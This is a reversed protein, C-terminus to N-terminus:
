SVTVADGSVAISIASLSPLNPSEGNPGVLNEGTAQDFEAGHCGGCRIRGDTVDTFTCKQHPCVASWAKFDGATPQVFVTKDVIVGGGVPVEATKASTGSSAGTTDAGGSEGEEGEDDSGCAALLPLGVGAMLAGRMATRRLMGGETLEDSM